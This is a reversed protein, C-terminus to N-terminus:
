CLPRARLQSIRLTAKTSSRKGPLHFHSPSSCQNYSYSGGVTGLVGLLCQPESKIASGILEIGTKTLLQDLPAARKGYASSVGEALM